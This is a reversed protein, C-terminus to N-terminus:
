PSELGHKEALELLEPCSHQPSIDPSSGLAIRLAVASIEETLADLLPTKDMHKEYWLLNQLFNMWDQFGVSLTVKDNLALRQLNLMDKVLQEGNIEATASFYERLQREFGSSPKERTLKELANLLQPARSEYDGQRILAVFGFLHFFANLDQKHLGITQSKDFLYLIKKEPDVLINGSHIDPDIVVMEDLIDSSGLAEPLHLQIMQGAVEAKQNPALDAFRSANIKEMRLIDETSTAATKIVVLQWSVRNARTQHVVEAVRSGLLEQKPDSEILKKRYVNEFFLFCFVM